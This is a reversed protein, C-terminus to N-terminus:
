NNTVFNITRTVDRGLDSVGEPNEESIGQIINHTVLDDFTQLSNTFRTGDPLKPTPVNYGKNVLKNVESNTQTLDPKEGVLGTLTASGVISNNNDQDIFNITIGVSVASYMINVDTSKTDANVTQEPIEKPSAVFGEIDPADYKAWIGQGPTWNGYSVRGNVMDKKATRTFHITQKISDKLNRTM